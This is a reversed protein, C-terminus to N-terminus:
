LVLTINWLEGDQMTILAGSSTSWLQTNGEERDLTIGIDQNRCWTLPDDSHIAFGDWDVLDSPEHGSSRTLEVSDLTGNILWLVLNGRQLQYVGKSVRGIHFTVRFRELLHEIQDHTRLPIKARVGLLTRLSFTKLRPM